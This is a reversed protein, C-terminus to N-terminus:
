LNFIRNFISIYTKIMNDNGLNEVIKSVGQKTLGMEKGMQKLLPYRHIVKEIFPVITSNTFDSNTENYDLTTQDYQNQNNNWWTESNLFDNPDNSIHNGNWEKKFSGTSQVVIVGIFVFVLGISIGKIILKKKEM